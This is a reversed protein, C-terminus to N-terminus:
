LMITPSVSLAVTSRIRVFHLVCLHLAELQQFMHLLVVLLVQVRTLLTALLSALAAEASWSAIAPAVLTSTSILLAAAIAIARAGVAAAACVASCVALLVWAVCGAVTSWSTASLGWLGGLRLLLGHVGHLVLCPTLVVSEVRVLVRAGLVATKRSHPARIDILWSLLLVVSATRLLCRLIPVCSWRRGCRM